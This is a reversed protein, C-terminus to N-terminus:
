AENFAQQLEAEDVSIELERGIQSREHITTNL